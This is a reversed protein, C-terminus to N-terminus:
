RHTRLHSPAQAHCGVLQCHVQYHYDQRLGARWDCRLCPLLSSHPHGGEAGRVAAHGSRYVGGDVEAKQGVLGVRM